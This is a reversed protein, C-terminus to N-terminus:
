NTGRIRTWESTIYIIRPAPLADGGDEPALLFFFIRVRLCVTYVCYMICLCVCCLCVFSYGYQM